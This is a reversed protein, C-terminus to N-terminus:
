RAYIDCLFRRSIPPSIALLLYNISSFYKKYYLNTRKM